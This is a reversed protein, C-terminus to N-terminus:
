VDPTPEPYFEPQSDEEFLEQTEAPTYTAAAAPKKYPNPRAFIKRRPAARRSYTAQQQQEPPQGGINFRRLISDLRPIEAEKIHSSMKHLSVASQLDGLKATFNAVSAQYNLKVMITKSKPNPLIEDVMYTHNYYIVLKLDEFSIVSEDLLTYVLTCPEMCINNNKKFSM